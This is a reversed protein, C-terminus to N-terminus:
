TVGYRDLIEHAWMLDLMELLEMECDLDGRAYEAVSEMVSRCMERTIVM